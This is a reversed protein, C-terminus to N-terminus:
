IHLWSGSIDVQLLLSSLAARLNGCPMAVAVLVAASLPPVAALNSAVWGNRPYVWLRQLRSDKKATPLISVKLM